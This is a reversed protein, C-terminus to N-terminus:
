TEHIKTTIKMDAKNKMFVVFLGWKEVLFLLSM